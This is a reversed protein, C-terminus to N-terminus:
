LWTLARDIKEINLLANPKTAGRANEALGKGFSLVSIMKENDFPATISLRDDYAWKSLTSAPIDLIESWRDLSAEIFTKQTM